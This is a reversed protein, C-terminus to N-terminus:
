IQNSMGDGLEQRTILCAWFREFSQCLAQLDCLLYPESSVQWQMMRLGWNTAIEPVTAEQISVLGRRADVDNLANFKSSTRRLVNRGEADECDTPNLPIMFVDSMM